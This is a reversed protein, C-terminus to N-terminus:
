GIPEYLKPVELGALKMLVSLQGRQHLLNSVLNVLTDERKIQVGFIDDVKDLDVDKWNKHIQRAVSEVLKAHEDLLAVLTKPPESFPKPGEVKLGTTALVDKPTELMHWILQGMTQFGPVFEVGLLADDQIASILKITKPAETLWFRLFDEVTNIIM